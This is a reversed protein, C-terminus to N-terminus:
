TLQVAPPPPVVPVPFSSCRAPCRRLLRDAGCRKAQKKQGWFCCAKALWVCVCVCVAPRRGRGGEQCRAGTTWTPSPRPRCCTRTPRTQRRPRCQFGRPCAAATPRPPPPCAQPWSPHPTQQPPPQLLTPLRHLLPPLPIPQPQGWATWPWPKRSRLHTCHHKCCNNALNKFPHSSPFPTLLRSCGKSRVVFGEVWEGVGGAPSADPSADLSAPSAPSATATLDKAM